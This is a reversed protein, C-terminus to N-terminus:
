PEQLHTGELANRASRQRAKRTQVAESPEQALELHPGAGVGKGATAAAESTGRFSRLALTIARAVEADRQRARREEEKARREEEESAQALELHPCGRGKGATAGVAAM